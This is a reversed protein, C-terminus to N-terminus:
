LWDCNLGDMLKEKERQRLHPFLYAMIIQGRIKGGNHTVHYRLSM